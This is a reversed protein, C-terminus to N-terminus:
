LSSTPRAAGALFGMGGNGQYRSQSHLLTRCNSCNSCIAVCVYAYMTHRDAANELLMTAMKAGGVVVVVVVVVVDEEEEEDEEDM